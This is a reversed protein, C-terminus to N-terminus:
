DADHCCFWFLRQRATADLPTAYESIEFAEICEIHEGRERGYQAILTKRFRDARPRILATYWRKLWTMRESEGAPVEDTIGQNFPLLDFVQSKHCALM